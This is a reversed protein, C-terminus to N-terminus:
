CAVGALEYGAAPSRIASEWRDIGCVQHAPTTGSAARALHTLQFGSVTAIASLPRRSTAVRCQQVTNAGGNSCLQAMPPTSVPPHAPASRHIALSM